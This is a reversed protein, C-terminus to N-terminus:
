WMGRLLPSKGMKGVMTEMQKYGQMFMMGEEPLLGAGICCRKLRSETLEVEIWDIEVENM